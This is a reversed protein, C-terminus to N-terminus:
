PEVCVGNIGFGDSSFSESFDIVLSSILLSANVDVQFDVRIGVLIDDAAEKAPNCALITNNVLLISGVASSYLAPDTAESLTSVPLIGVKLAQGASAALEM